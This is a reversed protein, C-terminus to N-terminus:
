CRANPLGEIFQTSQSVLCRLHIANTRVLVSDGFPIPITLVVAFRASSNSDHCVVSGTIAGYQPQAENAPGKQNQADLGLTSLMLVLLLTIRIYIKVGGIKGYGLRTV